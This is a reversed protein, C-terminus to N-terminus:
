WLAYCTLLAAPASTAGQKCAPPKRARRILPILWLYGFFLSPTFPIPVGLATAWGAYSHPVYAAALARDAAPTSPIGAGIDIGQWSFWPAFCFLGPILLGEALALTAPQGHQWVRRAVRRWHHHM